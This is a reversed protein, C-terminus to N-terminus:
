LLIRKKLNWIDFRVKPILLCLSNFATPSKISFLGFFPFLFLTFFFFRDVDFIGYYVPNIGNLPWGYWSPYLCISNPNINLIREFYIFFILLHWSIMFFVNFFPIVWLERDGPHLEAWGTSIKEPGDYMCSHYNDQSCIHHPYTWNVAHRQWEKLQKSQDNPTTLM